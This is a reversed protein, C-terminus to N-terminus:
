YYPVHVSGCITGGYGYDYDRVDIILIKKNTKIADAIMANVGSM